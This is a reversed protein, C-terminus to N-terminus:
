QSKKTEEAPATHFATIKTRLHQILADVNGNNNKIVSGFAARQEQAMWIGLAQVDFIKFENGEYILWWNIDVPPRGSPFSVRSMVIMEDADRVQTGLVTLKEDSFARLRALYVRVIYEDLLNMYQELQQPSTNRRTSGLAFLGVKELALADHVIETFRSDQDAESLSNDRLVGLTRDTVNEVFRQAEAPSPEALAPSCFFLAIAFATSLGPFKVPFSTNSDNM